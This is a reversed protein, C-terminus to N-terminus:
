LLGQFHDRVSNNAGQNHYAGNATGQGMPQMPSQGAGVGMGMGMGMGMGGMGGAGLPSSMHVGSGHAHGHGHMGGQMHGVGAGKGLPSPHHMPAPQGWGPAAAAAGTGFEPQQPTSDFLSLIDATTPKKAPTGAANPMQPLSATHRHAVGAPVHPAPSAM